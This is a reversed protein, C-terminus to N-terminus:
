GQENKQTPENRIYHEKNSALHLSKVNGGVPYIPAEGNNYDSVFLNSTNGYQHSSNLRATLSINSYGLM